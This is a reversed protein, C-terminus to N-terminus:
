KGTVAYDCYEDGVVLTDPDYWSGGTSLCDDQTFPAPPMPGTPTCGYVPDYVENPLCGPGGKLAYDCYEDGVFYLDPDYWTGGGAFCSDPGFTPYTMPAPYYVTTEMMSLRDTLESLRQNANYLQEHLSMTNDDQWLDIDEQEDMFNQADEYTEVVNAIGIIAFGILAGVILSLIIIPMMSWFSPRDNETPENNTPNAPPPLTETETTNTESPRSTDV